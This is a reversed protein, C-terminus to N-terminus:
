KQLLQIWPLMISEGCFQLNALLPQLWAALSQLTYMWTQLIDPPHEKILKVLKMFESISLNGSKMGLSVVPIGIQTLQKAIFGSPLLSIVRQEYNFGELKKALRYLMNEAGGMDLSTIIHTIRMPNTTMQWGFAM